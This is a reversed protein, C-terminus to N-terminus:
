PLQISNLWAILDAVPRTTLLPEGHETKGLTEPGVFFDGYLPMPSGHSVLPERGDIRRVVREVPFVGDNRAALSTLDSPQITLVPAMPGTGKADAGLCLACHHRFLDLGADVDQAMGPGALLQGAVFGWLVWM